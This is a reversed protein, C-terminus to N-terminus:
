KAAINAADLFLKEAAAQTRQDFAENLLEITPYYSSFNCFFEEAVVSTQLVMCNPIRTYTILGEKTQFQKINLISIM